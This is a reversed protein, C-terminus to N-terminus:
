RLARELEAGLSARQGFALNHAELERQVSFRRLAREVEAASQGRQQAGTAFLEALAARQDDDVVVFRFPRLGGHDPARLALDAACAWQRASPGPAALHRPGVSYRLALLELLDDEVSM